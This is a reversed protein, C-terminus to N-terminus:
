RRRPDARGRGDVVLGSESLALARLEGIGSVRRELDDWDRFLGRKREQLIAHSLTPGIGKVGDLAAQDAHNADVQASAPLSALLLWASLLVASFLRTKVPLAKMRVGQKSGGDWGLLARM